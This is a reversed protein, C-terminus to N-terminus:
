SSLSNKQGREEASQPSFTGRKRGYVLLARCMCGCFNSRLGANEKDYVFLTSPSIPSGHNQIFFKMPYFPM